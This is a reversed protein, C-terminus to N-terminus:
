IDGDAVGEDDCGCVTRRHSRPSCATGRAPCTGACFSHRARYAEDVQSPYSQLVHLGSFCQRLLSRYGELHQLSAGRAVSSALHVRGHEGCRPVGGRRHIAVRYTAAEVVVLRSLRLPLCLVRIDITTHRPLWGLRHQLQRHGRARHLSSPTARAM